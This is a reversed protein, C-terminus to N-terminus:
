SETSSQCLIGFVKLIQSLAISLVHRFERPKVWDHARAKFYNDAVTAKSQTTCLQKNKQHRYRKMGM